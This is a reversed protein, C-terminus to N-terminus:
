KNYAIILPKLNKTTKENKNHQYVGGRTKIKKEHSREAYVLWEGCIKISASHALKNLFRRM